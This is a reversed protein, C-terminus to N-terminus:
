LSRLYEILSAPDTFVIHGQSRLQALRGPRVDPAYGVVVKDTVSGSTVIQTGLGAAQGGSKVQIVAGTTEIDFDTLSNLHTSPDVMERGIFKVSGPMAADIQRALSPVLPDSSEFRLARTAALQDNAQQRVLQAPSLSARWTGERSSATSVGFRSGVSEGIVGGTSGLIVDLPNVKGTTAEDIAAAMGGGVLTGRIGIQAWTPVTGWADGLRALAPLGDELIPALSRAGIGITSGTGATVAGLGASFGLEGWNFGKQDQFGYIREIQIATDITMSAIAGVAGAALITAAIDVVTASLEVGVAAAAAVLGATVGGAVADSLFGTVISLVAGVAIVTAATAAIEEVRKRAADIASAYKELGDAMQRCAQAATDFYGGGGEWRSWYSGFADIAAGENHGKVGAAIGSAAHSVGDIAQAADRWARAARRLGAPDGQPWFLGLQFASKSDKGHGRTAVKFANPPIYPM